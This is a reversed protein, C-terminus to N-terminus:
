TLVMVSQQLRKAAIECYREELEIGIARRGLDKAARLTTGSGMFPDLVVEGEDTSKAMLWTLVGVPKVTPHVPDRTSSWEYRYICRPRKGNLPRRGKMAYIISEWNVGFGAELDGVTGADGKDWVIANKVQWYDAIVDVTEGIRLPSAFTYSHRDPKLLRDLLPMADRLTNLSEDGAIPAVLPDNRSRRATVYGVGYPPDTLVLDVPGLTPLYQRCDGHWIQIQGDDYYPTM